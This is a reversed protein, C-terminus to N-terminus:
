PRVLKKYWKDFEKGRLTRIEKRILSDSWQPHQKKIRVHLIEDSINKLIDLDNNSM